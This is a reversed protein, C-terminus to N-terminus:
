DQMTINDKTMHRDTRYLAKMTMKILFSAGSEILYINM